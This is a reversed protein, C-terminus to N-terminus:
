GEMGFADFGHKFSLQEFLIYESEYHEKCRRISPRLIREAAVSKCAIEGGRM